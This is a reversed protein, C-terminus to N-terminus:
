MKLATTSQANAGFIILTLQVAAGFMIQAAIDIADQM